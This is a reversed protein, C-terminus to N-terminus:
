PRGDSAHPVPGTSEHVNGGEATVSGPPLASLASAAHLLLRALNLLAALPAYTLLLRGWYPIQRWFRLWDAPVTAWGVLLAVGFTVWLSVIPIVLLYLLSVRALLADLALAPLARSRALRSVLASTELLAWCASLMAALAAVALYPVDPCRLWWSVFPALGAFTLWSARLRWPQWPGVLGAPEGLALISFLGWVVPGVYLLSLEGLWTRGVHPLYLTCGLAVLSWAQSDLGRWRSADDGPLRYPM